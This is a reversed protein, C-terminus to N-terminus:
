HLSPAVYMTIMHLSMQITDKCSVIHDRIAGIAETKKNLKFLQLPKAFLHSEDVRIDDLITQFTELNKQCDTISAKVNRWHQNEEAFDAAQRWRQQRQQSQANRLSHSISCLVNELANIEENFARWTSHASQASDLFSALTISATLCVGAVTLALAPISCPDM